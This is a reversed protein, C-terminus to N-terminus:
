GFLRMQDEDEVPKHRSPKKPYLAEFILVNSQPAPAIVFVPGLVVVPAEVILPKPQVVPVEAEKESADFKLASPADLSVEGDTAAAEMTEVGPLAPEPFQLARERALNARVEHALQGRGAERMMADLRPRRAKASAAKVELEELLVNALADTHVSRSNGVPFAVCGGRGNAVHRSDDLEQAVVRQRQGARKRFPEGNVRFPSPSDCRFIASLCPKSGAISCPQSAPVCIGM